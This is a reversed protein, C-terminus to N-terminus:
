KRKEAVNATIIKVITERELWCGAGDPILEIVNIHHQNVDSIRGNYLGLYQGTAVRHLSSDSAQILAWIMNRESLTGKMLLDSLAFKELPQKTRNPDPSLCGKIQQIKEQIAERRPKDFPSRMLKVSYDIHDFEAVAPMPDISSTTNAKINALDQELDVTSDFCGCLMMLLTVIALKKM